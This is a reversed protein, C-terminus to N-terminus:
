FPQQGVYNGTPNYNCVWIQTGNGCTAMGCGVETTNHWVVQTYHMCLKGQACTHTEADYDAKEQTWQSVVYQATRPTTTWFLNEGLQGRNTNHAITCANDNVLSEAWQQAFGAISPSWTLPSTGVLTREANHAATLGALAGTEAQPTPEPPPDQPPDKPPDKTGGGDSPPRKTTPRRRLKKGTPKKVLPKKTVPKRTTPAKPATPADPTPQPKAQTKPAGVAIAPIVLAAALAAVTSLRPAPNFMM